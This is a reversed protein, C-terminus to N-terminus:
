ITLKGLSSISRKHEALTRGLQRRMGVVMEARGGSDVPDSLDSQRIPLLIWAQALESDIVDTQNPASDIVYVQVPNAIVLVIGV